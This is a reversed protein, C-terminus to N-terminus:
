GRGACWGGLVGGGGRELMGDVWWGGGRVLVGGGGVGGMGHVRWGSTDASSPWVAVQGLCSPWLQCFVRGHGYTSPHKAM